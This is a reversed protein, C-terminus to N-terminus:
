WAAKGQSCHTASIHVLSLGHVGPLVYYLTEGIDRAEMRDLNYPYRSGLPFKNLSVQSLMYFLAYISLDAGLFNHPVNHWTISM